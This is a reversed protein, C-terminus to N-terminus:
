EFRPQSEIQNWERSDLLICYFRFIVYIKALFSFLVYNSWPIGPAIKNIPPIIRLKSINRRKLNVTREKVTDTEAIRAVANEIRKDFQLLDLEGVETHRVM